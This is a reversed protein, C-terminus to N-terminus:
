FSRPKALIDKVKLDHFRKSVSARIICVTDAGRGTGAIAVVDKGEEVLGADCAEFVIEVCV